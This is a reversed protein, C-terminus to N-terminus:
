FFALLMAPTSSRICGFSGSVQSCARVELELARPLGPLCESDPVCQRWDAFHWCGVWRATCNPNESPPLGLTSCGGAGEFEGGAPPPLRPPQPPRERGPLVTIAVLDIEILEMMMM